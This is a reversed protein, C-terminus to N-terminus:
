IGTYGLLGYGATKIHKNLKLGAPIGYGSIKLNHEIDYLRKGVRKINDDSLLTNQQQQTLESNFVPLIDTKIKTRKIAPKAIKIDKYCYGLKKNIATKSITDTSYRNISTTEQPIINHGETSIDVKGHELNKNLSMFIYNEIDSNLFLMNLLNKLQSDSVKINFAERLVAKLEYGKFAQRRYHRMFMKIALLKFDKHRRTKRSKSRKIESTVRSNYKNVLTQLNGQQNINELTIVRNDSNITTVFGNLVNNQKIPTYKITATLAKKLQKYQRQPKTKEIEINLLDTCQKYINQLRKLTETESIYFTQIREKHEPKAKELAKIVAKDRHGSKYYYCGILAKYQKELRRQQRQIDFSLCDLVKILRKAKRTAIGAKQKQKNHVVERIYGKWKQSINKETPKRTKM